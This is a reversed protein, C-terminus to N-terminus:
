QNMSLQKWGQFNSPWATTGRDAARDRSLGATSTIHLPHPIAVVCPDLTGISGISSTLRMLKPNFILTNM